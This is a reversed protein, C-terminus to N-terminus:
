VALLGKPHDRLRPFRSRPFRSRPFRAFRAFALGASSLSSQSFLSQECDLNAQTAPAPKLPYLFFDQLCTLPLFPSSAEEGRLM